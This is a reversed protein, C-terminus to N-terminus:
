GCMYVCMYVYVYVYIYIKKEENINVSNYIETRGMLEFFLTIHQITINYM